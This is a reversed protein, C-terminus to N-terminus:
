PRVSAGPPPAGTTGDNGEPSVALPLDPLLGITAAPPGAPTDNSSSRWYRSFKGDYGLVLGGHLSRPLIGGHPTHGHVIRSGGLAALYARVAAEDDFRRRDSLLAMLPFLRGGGGQAMAAGEANIEGITAGIRLLRDSDPHQVLTGDELRVVLPLSRIWRLLEEDRALSALDQWDGRRSKWLAVLSAGSGDFLPALRPGLMAAAQDRSPLSGNELYELILLIFVEHNGMVAMANKREMALRAARYGGAKGSLGGQFFDGLFVTRVEAPDYPRLARRLREVDGQVDGVILTPRM